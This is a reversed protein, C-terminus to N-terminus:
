LRRHPILQEVTEADETRGGDRLFGALVTLYVIEPVIHRFGGPRGDFGYIEVHGEPVHIGLTERDYDDLAEPFHMGYGESGFSVRRIAFDALNDPLFCWGLAERIDREVDADSVPQESM